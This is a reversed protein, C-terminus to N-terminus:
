KSSKEAFYKHELGGLFSEFRVMESMPASKAGSEKLERYKPYSLFMAIREGDIHFFVVFGMHDPNNGCHHSCFFMSTEQNQEVRSFPFSKGREQNKADLFLVVSTGDKTGKFALVDVPQSGSSSRKTNYAYWKRAKLYDLCLSKEDRNGNEM